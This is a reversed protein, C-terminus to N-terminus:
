SLCKISINCVKEAVGDALNDLSNLYSQVVGLPIPTPKINGGVCELLRKVGAKKQWAKLRQAMLTGQRFDNQRGPRTIPTTAQQEQPHM